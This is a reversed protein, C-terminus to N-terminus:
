HKDKCGCGRAALKEPDYEANQKWSSGDEYFEKKWIPVTEKLRDIAFHCGELSQRRHPSSVAIIVSAERVKVEGLRHLVAFKSVDPFKTRVEEALADLQKYAMPVYSEYELRLVKKGNFNDRTTGIFTSIAGCGDEGVMEAVNYQELPEYTICVYSNGKWKGKGLGHKATVVKADTTVTKAEDTSVTKAKDTTVTIAEDARKLRKSAPEM